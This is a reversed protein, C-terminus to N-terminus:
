DCGSSIFSEGGTGDALPTTLLHIDGADRPATVDWVLRQTKGPDLDLVAYAVPRDGQDVRGLDVEKGNVTLGDVSGGVPAYLYVRNRMGGQPLGPLQYGYVYRPLGTAPVDSSMTVEVSLQQDGDECAGTVVETDNHLYYGLKDGKEGNVYFGLETRGTDQPLANAIEEGALEEQEDPDAAWLAVRREDIGQGLAALLDPVSGDSQIMTDFISRAADAFFKDQKEDDTFEAYSDRLMLEVTNDPGLRRGDDLSVPGTYELLYSLAVPDITIVGDLPGRGLTEWWAAFLESNRPFDPNFTPRRATFYRPQFLELEEATPEVVRGVKEFDNPTLSKGLELRGDRTTMPVLSGPMGGTARVEANNQFAVLYRREGEAGLMSPLLDAATGAARTVRGASELASRVQVVPEQLPGVLGLTSLGGAAEEAEAVDPAAEDLIEAARTLPGVPLRGDQPRLSDPTLGDDVLPVLITDTLTHASDSIVRVAEVDDGVVPFFQALWWVPTHSHFDARATADDARRAAATAVEPNEATAAALKLERRAEVLSSRITWAQWLTLLVLVVVLLLLSLVGPRRRHRRTPTEEPDQTADAESGEVASTGAM